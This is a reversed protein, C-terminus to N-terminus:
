VVVGQRDELLAAFIRVEVLDARRLVEQKIHVPDEVMGSSRGTAGNSAEVAKRKRLYAEPDVLAAEIREVRRELTRRIARVSSALRRQMTTLAFGAASKTHEGRIERLQRSM